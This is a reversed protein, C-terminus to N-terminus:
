LRFLRRSWPRPSQCAHAGVFARFCIAGLQDTGCWSNWAWSGFLKVRCRLLWQSFFDLKDYGFGSQLLEIGPNPPDVEQEREIVGGTQNKGKVKVKIKPLVPIEAPISELDEGLSGSENFFVPPQAARTM